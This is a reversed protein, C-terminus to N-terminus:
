ARGLRRRITRPPADPEVSPLPRITVAPASTGRFSVTVADDQKENLIVGASGTRSAHGHLFAFGLEPVDSLVREVGDSFTGTVELRRARGPQLYVSEPYVALAQLTAPVAVNLTVPASAAVPRGATDQGIAVLTKTGALEAPVTLSFTTAPGSRRALYVQGSRDGLVLVITTVNTSGSVTVSLPGGSSVTTGPAPATIALSSAALARASRAQHNATPCCASRGGPCFAATSGAATTAAVPPAGEAPAPVPLYCATPTMYYLQPPDYGGSSFEPANKPKSLLNRVRDIVAQNDTSGVHLQDPYVSTTAGQLGGAQSALAVIFDNEDGRFIDATLENVQCAPFLMQVLAPVTAGVFSNIAGQALPPLGASVTSLAHVEVGSPHSGLGNLLTNIGSSYVNLDCVAGEYCSGALPELASCLLGAPDWVEDLLWNAMQSGGHPTNCTVVRRVDHNYSEGEYYLRSLIGGMSHAVLDVKGVAYGKDAAQELVSAVGFEVEEKNDSFAADNSGEYDVRSVLDKPYNGSVEVFDKEMTRFAGGNSWLGHTMVVPPRYVHVLMRTWVVKLGDDRLYRLGIWVRRSYEGEPPPQTPHTYKFTVGHEDRLTVQVEGYKAPQPSDVVDGTDEDLFVPEPYTLRDLCDPSTKKRYIDFGSATAGDATVRFEAVFEIDGCKRVIERGATPHTHGEAFWLHRIVDHVCTLCAPDGVQATAPVPTLAAMLGMLLLGATLRTVHAISDRNMILNDTVQRMHTLSGALGPM